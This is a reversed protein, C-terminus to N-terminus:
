ADGVAAPPAQVAQVVTQGPQGFLMFNIAFRPDSGQPLSIAGGWLQTGPLAYMKGLYVGPYIERIEDRFSSFEHEHDSYDIVLAREGPAFYSDGAYVKGPYLEVPATLGFLRNVFVGYNMKIRNTVLGGPQWTANAGAGTGNTTTPQTVAEDAFCKGRWASPNGTRQIGYVRAITELPGGGVICGTLCGERAPYVVDCRTADCRTACRVDTLPTRPDHTEM